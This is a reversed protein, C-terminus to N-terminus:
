DGGFRYGGYRIEDKFKSQVLKRLEEDYYEVYGDKDSENRRPLDDAPVGLHACVQRFDERLNEFRLIADVDRDLSGFRVEPLIGIRDSIKDYLSRERLFHRVGEVDEVLRIFEERDWEDVDRHPSFYFSVMRDWPNRLVGFKCLGEYVHSPLVRRYQELTAHKSYCYKPHEVEFRECGDQNEYPTIIEDDSYDALISQISNGGTKPVHIFLFNYDTSLM